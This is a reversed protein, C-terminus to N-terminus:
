NVILLKGSSKRNRLLGIFGKQKRPSSRPMNLVKKGTSAMLSARSSTIPSPPYELRTVMPSQQQDYPAVMPSSVQSEVPLMPRESLPVPPSSPGGNRYESGLIQNLKRNTDNNPPQPFLSMDSYSHSHDDGSLSQFDTHDLTLETKSQRYSADMHAIAIRDDIATSRRNDHIYSARTYSDYSEHRTFSIRNTSYNTFSPDSSQSTQSYVDITHHRQLSAQQPSHPQVYTPVFRPKSALPIPPPKSPFPQVDQQPPFYDQQYQSEWENYAPSVGGFSARRSSPYRSVHVTGDSTNPYPSPSVRRQSSHSRRELEQLQHQGPRAQMDLMQRGRQQNHQVDNRSGSIDAQQVPFNWQPRNPEPSVSHSRRHGEYCQFQQSLRQSLHLHRTSDPLSAVSKGEPYLHGFVTNYANAQRAIYEHEPRGASFASDFSKSVESRRRSRSPLEILPECSKLVPGPDMPLDVQPDPPTVQKADKVQWQQARVQIEESLGKNFATSVRSNETFWDEESSKVALDLAPPNDHFISPLNQVNPFSRDAYVRQSQSMIPPSSRMTPMTLFSDVKDLPREKASHNPQLSESTEIQPDSVLESMSQAFPHQKPESKLKSHDHKM